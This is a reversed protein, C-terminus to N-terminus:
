DRLNKPLFAQQKQKIESEVWERLNAPLRRLQWDREEDIAAIIDKPNTAAVVKIAYLAAGLAHTPVHATAVAQGAARAAFRAANDGERVERAAAHAALSAGRIVPMSFKGTIVWARLTRIAERPRTDEPYDEEFFPLLHEACDAAWLALAKHDNRNFFIWFEQHTNIYRKKLEKLIDEDLSSCSCNRAHKIHWKVRQDLTPNKPMRNKLHWEANQSSEFELQRVQRGTEQSHSTAESMGTNYCRCHAAVLTKLSLFQEGSQRKNWSRVSIALRIM